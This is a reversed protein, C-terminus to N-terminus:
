LKKKVGLIFDRYLTCVIFSFGTRVGEELHHKFSTFNTNECVNKTPQIELNNNRHATDDNVIENENQVTDMDMCFQNLQEGTAIYALNKKDSSGLTPCTYLELGLHNQVACLHKCYKGGIGEYCGCIAYNTKVTYFLESDNM